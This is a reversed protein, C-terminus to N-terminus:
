PRTPSSDERLRSGGGSSGSPQTPIDLCDAYVQIWRGNRRGSSTVPEQCIPCDPLRESCDFCVCLHHCTTSIMSLPRDLCVKCLSLEAVRKLEERLADQEKLEAGLLDRQEDRFRQASIKALADATEQTEALIMRLGKYACALHSNSYLLADCQGEKYALYRCWEETLCVLHQNRHAQVLERTKTCCACECDCMYNFGHAEVDCPGCMLLARGDTDAPPGSRDLSRGHRCHQQCQFLTGAGCQCSMPRTDPEVREQDMSQVFRNAAGGGLIVDTMCAQNSDNRALRWWYSCSDCGLVGSGVDSGIPARTWISSCTNCCWRELFAEGLPGRAMPIRASLTPCDSFRAVHPKM